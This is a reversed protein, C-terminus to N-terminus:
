VVQKLRKLKRQWRREPRTVAAQAVKEAFREQLKFPLAEDHGYLRVLPLYALVPLTVARTVREADKTVQIQGL